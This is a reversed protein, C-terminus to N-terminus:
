LEIGSKAAINPLIKLAKGFELRAMQKKLNELEPSSPLASKLQEFLPVAELNQDRLVAQFKVLLPKLEEAALPHAPTEGSAGAKSTELLAADLVERLQQEMTVLLASDAAIDQGGVKAECECLSRYLQKAGITGSLGKLTHVLARAQEVDNQGIATRIASVVSHNQAKFDALIQRYLRENGGVRQVGENVDLVALEGAPESAEIPLVPLREATLGPTGGQKQHIWRLLAAYLAQPAIPKPVHDNMGAALCKEREGTMAYATMAIIPLEAMSKNQRILRTAEYGDMVPMQIDMLVADFVAGAAILEVAKLGNEVIKVIVGAQEIIERAVQRNISNDEVVLVRMGRLDVPMVEAKRTLAGAAAMWLTFSFRSGTGIESEVVLEAGMLHLLKKAISLGLGTGGYKRTISSDAQSFAEFIREVQERDMGIGTDSVSFTLPIKGDEPEGAQEVAIVVHGQETFKVANGALNGLVHGLRLPDGILFQPLEVPLSFLVELGKEEARGGIITGLGEFLECPSFPISELELRGAEIKSFDLIDNIIGLLSESAQIIKTTYDKQRPDLDTQLTLYAMGTIANMPTRIEHSM